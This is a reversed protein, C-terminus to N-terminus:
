SSPESGRRAPDPASMLGVANGDPDEVVAYRSGWFADYPPQQGGYGAGTLDAYMKDVAERSPARFGLIVGPGGRWGRDWQPAFDASDFDLGIGDPMTANRHQHQWAPETDPIELGLRRYFAVSADMDKVVISVKLAPQEDAV